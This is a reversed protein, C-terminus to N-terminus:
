GGGGGGGGGGGSAAAAHAARIKMELGLLVAIAMIELDQGLEVMWDIRGDGGSMSWKQNIYAALVTRDNAADLLKFDQSGM